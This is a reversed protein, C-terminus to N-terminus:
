GQALGLKCGSKTGAKDKRDSGMIANCFEIFKKGQLPKTMYDAVMDGTPCWEISVKNKAIRDTVFYYRINIHKTHKTSLSKGNKELLVASKNDQYIINDKVEYGQAALFYCALLIMPMMDDVGILKSEMSSRTNLKQKTSCIIPFGRGMSLRGGTHGRMNQHVAFSADVYWELTGSANAGLVLPMDITKCLYEM